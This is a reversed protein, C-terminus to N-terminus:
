CKMPPYIEARLERVLSDRLSRTEGCGPEFALCRLRELDRCLYIAELCASRVDEFESFQAYHEFLRLLRASTGGDRGLEMFCVLGLLRAERMRESPEASDLSDIDSAAKAMMRDPEMAGAHFWRYSREFQRLQNHFIRM